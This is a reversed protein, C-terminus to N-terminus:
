SAINLLALGMRELLADLHAAHNDITLTASRSSHDYSCEIIRRPVNAPHDQIRVYDGARIHSVPLPKSITPHRVTGTVRVRGKRQPQAKEALFAAGITIAGEQTTVQQAQLLPWRRPIGRRNVPNTDSTDVLSDDTGDARATGGQWYAAPPGVSREEGSPDRYKVIVGNFVEDADDGEFDLHVGDSLRVDWTLRSPNPQRFFFTGDYVGWEWFTYANVQLLADEGTTHSLFALHPITATNTEISGGDGTTYSLLPATRSVIDAVVDSVYFGDPTSADITRKTLGHNGYVALNRWAIAYHTADAGGATATGWLFRILGVRRATTATFTTTGTTSPENQLDATQERNTHADDDAVGLRWEWTANTANERQWDAYISAVKVGPGPDYMAESVPTATTPWAGVFETFLAPLGNATDSSVFHDAPSTAGAILTIRRARSVVDWHSLDRDVYVETFSPDDKLHTAEGVAHVQIAFDDGHSRPFAQTRGKWLTKNGAGLVELTSFLQLDPFDVDVRRALRLTCTKDGGPISSDFTLSDPIDQAANADYAWRWKHGDPTTLQITVRDDAM